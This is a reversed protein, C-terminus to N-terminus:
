QKVARSLSDTWLKMNKRSVNRKDWAFVDPMNLEDICSIGNGILTSLLSSDNDKRCVPIDITEGWEPNLNSAKICTQQHFHHGRLSSKDVDCAMVVCYPDSTRSIDMPPLNKAKDISVRWVGELRSNPPYEMWVISCYLTSGFASAVVGTLKYPKNEKLATIGQTDSLKPLSIEVSGIYDDPTMSDFDMVQIVVKTWGRPNAFQNYYFRAANYSLRDLGARYLDWFHNRDMKDESTLTEFREADLLESRGWDFIRVTVATSSRNPFFGADYAVAVSSGIWKQPITVRHCTKALSVLKSMLEHAIIETVETPSYRDTLTLSTSEEMHLDLFYRFVSKQETNDHDNNSINEDTLIDILPDMSDFVEPCGDFGALRYGESASNSLGDMLHHKMARLRSKGKWGAQATKEGIKLDLMRFSTHKNRLNRMVLLDCIGDNGDCDSTKARLVGLYNFMFSELLGIGEILDRKKTDDHESAAKSRIRLIQLYFDREDEAHSLDKGIWYNKDIEVGTQSAERSAFERIGKETLALRFFPATGGSTSVRQVPSEFWSPDVKELENDDENSLLLGDEVGESGQM